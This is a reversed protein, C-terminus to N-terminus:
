GVHLSPPLEFRCARSWGVWEPALSVDGRSCARLLHGTYKEIMSGAIPESCGTLTPSFAAELPDSQRREGLDIQDGEQLTPRVMRHGIDIDFAQALGRFVVRAAKGCHSLRGHARSLRANAQRRRAARGAGAHGVARSRDITRAESAISDIPFTRAMSSM